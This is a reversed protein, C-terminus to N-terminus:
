QLFLKRFAEVNSPDVIWSSGNEFSVGPALELSAKAGAPGGGGAAGLGITAGVKTGDTLTFMVKGDSFLTEVVSVNQGIKIVGLTVEESAKTTTDGIKYRGPLPNFGANGALKKIGQACELDLASLELLIGNLKQQAAAETAPTQPGVTALIAKAEAVLPEIRDAYTGLLRGVGALRDSALQTETVVPDLAAVLVPAEPALYYPQCRRWIRTVEAGHDAVPAATGRLAEAAHRIAAPDRDIAAMAQDVLAM